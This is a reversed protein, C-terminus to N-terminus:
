EGGGAPVANDDSKDRPLMPKAGLHPKLSFHEICACVADICSPCLEYQQDETARSKISWDFRGENGAMTAVCQLLVGRM